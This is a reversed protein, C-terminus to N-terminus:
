SHALFYEVCDEKLQEDWTYYMDCMRDYAMDEFDPEDDDIEEESNEDCEDDFEAAREEEWEERLEAITEELLIADLKDKIGFNRDYDMECPDEEQFYEGMAMVDDHGLQLHLGESGACSPRAGDAVLDFSYYADIVYKKKATM